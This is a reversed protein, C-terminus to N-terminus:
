LIPKLIHIQKLHSQIIEPSQKESFVPSCGQYAVKIKAADANYIDVLDSKTQESIAIVVDAVQIARKVKNRYISRDILPYWDPHREFIIDHITVLTKVSTKEIGVPLENSLGHYM